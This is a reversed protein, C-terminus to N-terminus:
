AAFGGADLFAQEAPTTHRGLVRNRHPFRGFRIIVDRHLRAFKVYDGTGHRHMLEVCRNQNSISESHMFPMFFFVALQKEVQLHYNKAIADTAAAEALRDGAFSRADGRFMNRSFQDLLLVLALSSLPQEQWSDLKRAMALKHTASFREAITRDVEEDKKFWGAPGLTNWFDVIDVASPSINTPKKM